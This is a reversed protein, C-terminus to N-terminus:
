SMLKHLSQHLRPESHLTGARSQWSVSISRLPGMFLAVKEIQVGHAEVYLQQTGHVWMWREVLKSTLDTDQCNSSFDLWLGAKQVIVGAARGSGCCREDIRAREVVTSPASASSSARGGEWRNGGTPWIETGRRQSLKDEREAGQQCSSASGRGRRCDRRRPRRGRAHGAASLAAGSNAGRREATVVADPAATAGALSRPALILRPLRFGDDRRM